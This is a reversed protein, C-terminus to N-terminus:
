LYSTAQPEILQKGAVIAKAAEPNFELYLVHQDHDVRYNNIIKMDGHLTEVSYEDAINLIGDINTTISARDKQFLEQIHNIHFNTEFQNPHKKIHNEVHRIFLQAFFFYDSKHMYELNM